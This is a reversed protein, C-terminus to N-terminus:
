HVTVVFKQTKAPPTDKEWPRVYNLTLTGTGKTVAAFTFSETGGRGPMAQEPENYISARLQVVTPGPQAALAWQYGTTRNSDLTIVIQDGLRAAVPIASTDSQRTKVTVQVNTQLGAGVGQGSPQSMESGALGAALAVLAAVGGASMRFGNMKGWERQHHYHKM